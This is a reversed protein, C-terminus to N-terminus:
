RAGPVGFEAAAANLTKLGPDGKLATRAIALERGAQEGQNLVMRSRLLRVWGDVDKPNAKLKAALGEVMGDIMQQRDAPPLQSAAQMAAPDIPPPAGLDGAPAAPPMGAAAVPAPAPNKLRSSVDVGLKGSTEKIQRHLDAQWPAEPPGDNALVIWKELAEKEQGNQAQWLAMFYRARPETPDLAIAKEFTARAEPTVRTKAIGVMAEGLGAHVAANGPMLTLARQYPEIAKEPRGTMVYSWGLMRFGEGDNPNKALRDALKAIMTDVDSLEGAAPTGQGGAVTMGGAAPNPADAPSRLAFVAVAAVLLAGAAALIRNTVLWQKVAHAGGASAVPVEERSVPAEGADVPQTSPPAERAQWVRMAVIGLAVGALATLVYEFM